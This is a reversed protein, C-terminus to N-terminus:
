CEIGRVKMGEVLLERAIAGISLGNSDAAKEIQMRMEKPVSFHLPLM